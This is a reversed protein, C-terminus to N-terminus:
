EFMALLTSMRALQARLNDRRAKLSNIWTQNEVVSLRMQAAQSDWARRRVDDRTLRVGNQLQTIGATRGNIAATLLALQNRLAALRPQVAARRLAAEAASRRADLANTVAALQDAHAEASSVETSNIVTIEHFVSMANEDGDNSSGITDSINSLASQLSM